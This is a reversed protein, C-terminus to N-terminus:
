LDIKNEIQALVKLFVDNINLGTTDIIIADGAPRMPSARRERDRVDREALDDLVTEIKISVDANKLQQYRRHAREDLSASLFLKIDANPFVVTGMDRGDAILGPAKQFNRQWQLLATRVGQHVSIKSALMGIEETRIERTIENNELFVLSDCNDDSFKFSVSLGLAINELASEDNIDIEKQKVAYALVRYLAGSDLFHWKFKKALLQSITGKGSGSPGDVTIVHIHQQTM